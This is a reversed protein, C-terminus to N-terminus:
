KAERTMQYGPKNGSASMKADRIVGGNLSKEMWQKAAEKLDVDPGWYKRAFDIFTKETSFTARLIQQQVDPLKSFDILNVPEASPGSGGASGDPRMGGTSQRRQIEAEVQERALESVHRGRVIDAIMELNEMTQFRPEVRNIEVQLEPGFRKFLDSHRQQIMGRALSANNQIVAEIQPNIQQQYMGQAAREFSQRPNALFDTDDPMAWQNQQPQPQQYQPQPAQRPQGQLSQRYLQDLVRAGEDATKGRLYDVHYDVPYRWESPGHTFQGNTAQNPSPTTGPASNVGSSNPDGSATPNPNTNATQPQVSATM